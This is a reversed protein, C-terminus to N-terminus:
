NQTQCSHSQMRLRCDIRLCSYLYGIPIVCVSREQMHRAERSCELTHSQFGSIFAFTIYLLVAVLTPIAAFTATISLWTAPIAPSMSIDLRTSAPALLALTISAIKAQWFKRFPLLIALTSKALTIDCPRTAVCICIFYVSAKCSRLPTSICRESARQQSESPSSCLALVKASSDRLVNIKASAVM